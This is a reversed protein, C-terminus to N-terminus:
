LSEIQIHSSFQFLCIRVYGIWITFEPFLPPMPIDVKGQIQVQVKLSM